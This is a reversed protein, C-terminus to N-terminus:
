FYNHFNVKIYKKLPKDILIDVFLSCMIVVLVYYLGFSSLGTTSLCYLLPIHLVYLPYSIDGLLKSTQIFPMNLLHGYGIAACTIIWTISWFDTTFFGNFAIIVIGLSSVFFMAGSVNRYHYFWFGILWAWALFLINIGYLMQSFYHFGLYRQGAFLLSSALIIYIFYKNTVNLYPTILYFFVEVMLTWVIPNSELSEVLIGQMFFLNGVIVSLEPFQIQHTNVSPTESLYFFVLVSFIIGILYVPIIRLARRAYFGKGGTEYSAAISYGSIMLFSLVSVLPSFKTAKLVPDNDIFWGLHSALVVFALFFRVLGLLPWNPKIYIDSGSM